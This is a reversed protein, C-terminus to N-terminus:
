CFKTLKFLFEHEIPPPIQGPDKGFYKWHGNERQFYLHITYLKRLFLLENESDEEIVVIVGLDNEFAAQNIIFGKIEFCQEQSTCPMLTLAICDAKLNLARCFTRTYVLGKNNWKASDEIAQDLYSPLAGGDELLEITFQDDPNQNGSSIAFSVHDM